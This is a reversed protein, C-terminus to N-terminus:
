SKMDKILDSFFNKKYKEIDEKQLHGFNTRDIDQYLKDEEIEVLFRTKNRNCKKGYITREKCYTLFLNEKARTIGVYFLRREEEIEGDEKIVRKHPLIEEEAGVLYVQKFELGKSSHLTMITLEDNDKKDKNNDQSDQLCVFELYSKLSIEKAKSKTFRRASDVFGQVDGIRRAAQNPNEKYQDKIYGEYNLSKIFNEIAIPLSLTKFDRKANKILEIFASIAKEKKPELAPNAEMIRYLSAKEESAKDLFKKLTVMGIGRTPVNLIRRLSVEDYPNQIVQLYAMLDKVEKKEYFKQGGIYQYPIDLGRLGDEIPPAINNSRFLIAIDCFKGGNKKYNRIEEAIIEAEHDPNGMAWLTPKEGSDNKTWLSKMRRKKNQVIVKNALNLIPTTSRYNEELKIIKAEPYTKHFNLINSIEAGRFGYISQDDDGVVCLNSHTSTLYSVIKFQLSNTDQYEDIMIYQYIRSYKEAIDPNDRFLKLTLFLIDDFDICSFFALKNQYERYVFEIADDYANDDDFFESSAFEEAGIGKNKLFSIRSLILKQDFKKEAKFNKLISRIVGISDVPTFITFNKSLGLKEAEKKLISVGLSHFTSLTISTSGILELMREKMEKTAKNTFSLALIREPPIGLNSVMHAMRYTITRTKGSGAGALILLPGDITKAAEKQPENLGNLLIM